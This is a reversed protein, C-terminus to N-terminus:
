GHATTSGLFSQMPWKRSFRSQCLTEIEENHYVYQLPSCRILIGLKIDKNVM